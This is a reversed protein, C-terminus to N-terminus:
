RKWLTIEGKFFKIGVVLYGTQLATFEKADYKIGDLLLKELTYNDEDVLEEFKILTEGSKQLNQSTLYKAVFRQSGEKEGLYRTVFHYFDTTMDYYEISGLDEKQTKFYNLFYSVGNVTVRAFDNAYIGKQINNTYVQAINSTAKHYHEFITKIDEQVNDWVLKAETDSYVKTNYGDAALSNNKAKLFTSVEQMKTTADNLGNQANKIVSIDYRDFNAAEFTYSIYSFYTSLSSFINMVSQYSNNLESNKKRYDKTYEGYENLNKFADKDVNLVTSTQQNITKKIDEPKQPWLIVAAVIGGIIALILLLFIFGKFSSKAKSM